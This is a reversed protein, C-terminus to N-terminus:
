IADRISKVCQDCEVCVDPFDGHNLKLLNMAVSRDGGTNQSTIYSNSSMSMATQSTEMESSVEGKINESIGGSLNAQDM